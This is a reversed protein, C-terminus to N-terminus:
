EVIALARKFLPEAKAYAGIVKYLVALSNLSNATRPHEPGLARETIELARAALPIAQKYAGTAYYQSVQGSLRQAEALGGEQAGATSLVLLALMFVVAIRWHLGKM